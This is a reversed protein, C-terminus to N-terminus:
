KAMRGVAVGLLGSTINNVLNLADKDFIWMAVIAIITLSIIGQPKDDDIIMNLINKM